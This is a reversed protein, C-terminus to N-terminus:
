GPGIRRALDLLVEDGGLRGIISFGVPCGDVTALPISIQPLGAHGAVGTMLLIRKRVDALEDQSQGVLPAICPATPLAMVAGENLVSRLWESFEKRWDAWRAVEDDSFGAITRFRDAVGPGFTPREAEIWDRHTQWAERGQLVIYANLQPEISSDEGILIGQQPGVLEELRDLVPAVAAQVAEDAVAWIDEPVYLRTLIEPERWDDFLVHAVGSMVAPDRAFWGITDYSPGLPMIGELPIRGHTPRLGYVGCFSAPIRVSGGTDSGLAFHAEGAAVAAASGSSSGGAVRGPANVNVPAGYHVNEGILSYAMEETVTKGIMTAGAEILREVVPASETAPEHTRLWDPNGCGTRCGAVDIIDKVAFTLGSLLADQAGAIVKDCHAVFAGTEGRIM